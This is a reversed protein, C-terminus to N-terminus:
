RVFPDPVKTCTLDELRPFRIRSVMALSLGLLLVLRFGAFPERGPPFLLWASAYIWASATTPLGVFCRKGRPGLRAPQLHFRILRFGASLVYIVSSVLAIPRGGPAHSLAFTLAPACGFSVFDACSDWIRGFASATGLWRATRGDLGDLVAGGIIAWCAQEWRQHASLVVAALGLCFNGTTLLHPLWGIM